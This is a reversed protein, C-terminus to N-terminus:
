LLSGAARPLLAVVDAIITRSWNALTEPTPYQGLSALHKPFELRIVDLSHTEKGRRLVPGRPDASCLTWGQAALREAYASAPTVAPRPWITMSSAGKPLAPRAPAKARAAAELRAAAAQQEPAKKAAAAQQESAKLAAIREAEAKKARAEAVRAEGAPDPTWPLGAGHLLKQLLTANEGPPTTLKTSKM